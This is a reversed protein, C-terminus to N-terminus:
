FPLRVTGLEKLSHMLAYRSLLDLHNDSLDLHRVSTNKFGQLATQLAFVGDIKYLSAEKLSVCTVETKKFGSFIKNLVKGSLAGLPTKVFYFHGPNGDDYQRLDYCAQPILTPLDRVSLCSLESLSLQIAPM